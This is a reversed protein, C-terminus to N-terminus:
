DTYLEPRRHPLFYRMRHNRVRHLDEAKLDVLLLAEESGLVKGLVEGSPGIGVAVGPFFLGKKNEGTQNCAIVYLSNDYARAPLHRLWSQYKSEPKGRPSAHPIFLVEAGKIAMQSSLEPFHADFCLQIGFTVGHFAFLPIENGSTYLAKEPAALHLKRYVGIQDSDPGVVMHSAFLQGSPDKEAMGALIMIQHTNALVALADTIPKANNVALDHMVPQVSYGTINMEPFCIISAGKRAAEEVWFAMRALNNESEGVPSHYIVVAIRIDRM